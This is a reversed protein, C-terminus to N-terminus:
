CKEYQWNRKKGEAIWNIAQDLRAARTEERKADSIWECYERRQGPAFGQWIDHAAAHSSLAAALAPPVEAEPKPTKKVAFQPPKVGRDILVMSNSIMATLAGDAPLDALSQLRGFSGMAADEYGTGGTVMRGYWFGFTAHEKFAGLMAIITGNYTFAAHGWKVAEEGTPCADHALARIHSLIPRAFPQAAAIMADIRPNTQM